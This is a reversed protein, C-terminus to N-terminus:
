LLATVPAPRSTCASHQTFSRPTLSYTRALTFALAGSAPAGGGQVKPNVPATSRPAACEATCNPLSVRSVGALASSVPLRPVAAGYAELVHACQRAQKASHMGNPFLRTLRACSAAGESREALQRQGMGRVLAAVVPGRSSSRRQHPATCALCPPLAHSPVVRWTGVRSNTREEEMPFGLPPSSAVALSSPRPRYHPHARTTACDGLSLSVHSAFAEDPRHCCLPLADVLSRLLLAFPAAGFRQNPHAPLSRARSAVLSRRTLAPFHSLRPRHVRYHETFRATRPLCEACCVSSTLSTCCVLSPAATQSLHLRTESELARARRPDPSPFCSAVTRTRVCGGRVEKCVHSPFLSFDALPHQARKCTRHPRRCSARSSVFSAAGYQPTRTPLSPAAPRCCWCRACRGTRALSASPPM